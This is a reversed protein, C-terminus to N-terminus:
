MEREKEKKRFLSKVAVCVDDVDLGLGGHNLETPGEMQFVIPSCLLVVGVIDVVDVVVVVCDVMVWAVVSDVVVTEETTLVVLAVVIDVAGDVVGVVGVVVVVEVVVVGNGLRRSWNDSTVTRTGSKGPRELFFGDVGKGATTSTSTSWM